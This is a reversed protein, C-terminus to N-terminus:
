QLFWVALSHLRPFYYYSMQIHTFYISNGHKQTKSSLAYYASTMKRKYLQWIVLFTRWHGVHHEVQRIYTAGETGRRLTQSVGVVLHRATISGLRSIWNFNAPTGWVPWGIEATLLGFNAMNHLCTSSTNISLLKKRNDIRAKTAFIYGLLTTRHHGSPSKQRSKQTRHKWRAANLLNCVQM